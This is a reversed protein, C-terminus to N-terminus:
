EEPPFGIWKPASHRYKDYENGFQNSLASEELSVQRYLYICVAPLIIHQVLNPEAGVMAGFAGIFTGLYMPNRSYKFIGTTVLGSQTKNWRVMSVRAGRRGMEYFGIGFITMGVLWLGKGLPKRYQMRDNWGYEELRSLSQAM